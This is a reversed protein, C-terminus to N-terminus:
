RPGSAPNIPAASSQALPVGSTSTSSSSSSVAPSKTRVILCSISKSRCHDMTSNSSLSRLAALSAASIHKRPTTAADLETPRIADHRNTFIGIISNWHWSWGFENDQVVIERDGIVESSM